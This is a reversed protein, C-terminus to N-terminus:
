KRNDVMVKQVAALVEEPTMEGLFMRQMNIELADVESSWTKWDPMGKSNEAVAESMSAMFPLIEAVEPREYYEKTAGATGRNIESMKIQADTSALYKVLQAAAEQNKSDTAVTWIWSDIAAAKTENSLAVFDWVGPVQSHEPDNFESLRITLMYAMAAKGGAGVAFVEEWHFNSIGPPAYQSLEQFFQMTELAEPTDLTPNNDDDVVWGGNALLATIYSAGLGQANLAPFAVGYMDEEQSFAKAAELIAEFSTPAALGKEEFLDTRYAIMVSSIWDPLGYIKGDEHKYTELLSPVFLDRDEQTTYNDIPQLYGLSAFQRWWSPHAYVVDYTGSGSALELTQKEQLQVWPLFDTKVKIGTEKEFDELVAMWGSNYPESLPACLTLETASASCAAALSLTLLIVLAIAIFKRVM